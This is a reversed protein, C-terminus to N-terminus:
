GIVGRAQCSPCSLWSTEHDDEEDVLQQGCFPCPPQKPALRAIQNKLLYLIPLGVAAWIAFFGLLLIAGMAMTLFSQANLTESVKDATAVTTGDPHSLFLSFIFAAAFFSIFAIAAIIILGAVSRLARHLRYDGVLKRFDRALPDTKTIDAPYRFEM